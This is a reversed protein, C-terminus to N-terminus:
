SAPHGHVRVAGPVGGLGIEGLVSIGNLVHELVGVDLFMAPGHGRALGLGMLSHEDERLRRAETRSRSQDDAQIVLELEGIGPEAHSPEPDRQGAVAIGPQGRSQGPVDGPDQRNRSVRAGQFLGRLQQLM